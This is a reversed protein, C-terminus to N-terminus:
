VTVHPLLVPSGEHLELQTHNDHPVFNTGSTMRVSSRRAAREARPPNLITILIMPIPLVIVRLLQYVSKAHLHQYLVTEEKKDSLWIDRHICCENESLRFSIQALLAATSSTLVATAASQTLAVKMNHSLAAQHTYLIRCSASM